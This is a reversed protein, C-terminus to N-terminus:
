KELTKGYWKRYLTMDGTIDRVLFYDQNEIYQSFLHRADSRATPETCYEGYDWQALYILAEETCAPPAEWEPLHIVEYLRCDAEPFTDPGDCIHAVYQGTSDDTRVWKIIARRRENLLGSKWLPSKM